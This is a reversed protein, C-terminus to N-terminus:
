RNFIINQQPLLSARLLTKRIFFNELAKFTARGLQNAETKFLRPSLLALGLILGITRKSHPNNIKLAGSCHLAWSSIILILISNKLEPTLILVPPYTIYIYNLVSGGAIALIFLKDYSKFIQWSADKASQLPSGIISRGRSLALFRLSYLVTLITGIIFLHAGWAGLTSSIRIELILDKSYFGSLFPLGILRLNRVLLISGTFKSHSFPIRIVRLDQYDGSSHITSGTAMFILAKFYAHVLLHYFAVQYCRIGLCCIILGLQSLTSLAVIKKFDDELLGGFGAIVMTAAGTILIIEASIRCATSLSDKFRLLIYIGATVLTSSHVLSSVPTPAAIAAPLWSSFPIQARKTFAAFVILLAALPPMNRSRLGFAWIATSGRRLFIILSIIILVDGLRNTLLTILGANLSNKNQFYVVLLFSTVGLGDWGILLLFFNARFVLIWISMVFSFLLLFFRDKTPDEKIYDLRYTFVAVSIWSIRIFFLTSELDAIFDLSLFFPGTTLATFSFVLVTELYWVAGILRITGLGALLTLAWIHNENAFNSNKLIYKKTYCCSFNQNELVLTLPTIEGSPAGTTVKM